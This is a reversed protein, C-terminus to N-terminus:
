YDTKSLEHPKKEALVFVDVMRCDNLLLFGNREFREKIEQINGTNDQWAVQCDQLGTEDIVPIDLAYDLNQVLVSLSIYRGGLSRPNKNKVPSPNNIATLIRGTKKILVWCPIERKEKKVQMGFYRELDKQMYVKIEKTEAAPVVLEYTYAYKYKWTNVDGILRYREPQRAELLIRNPSVKNMAPYALKYLNEISTNTSYCRIIAPNTNSTGTFSPLGPSYGTLISRYVINEGDGGNNKIFLPLSLDYDLDNKIRLVVSSGSSIAKINEGTIEEAGTIAKVVRHQDIWVYHPIMKHAFLQTLITDEIIGPFSYPRDNSNKRKAFFSSIKKANDGTNKSNVLIVQLDDKFQQQLAELKPFGQLCSTCWTSWFDLILLKGSVASLTASDNNFGVISNSLAFPPVTDGVALPKIPQSNSFLPFLFIFILFSHKM